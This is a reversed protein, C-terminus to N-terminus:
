THTNQGRTSIYMICIDLVACTLLPCQIKQFQLVVSNHVAIYISPVSDPGGAFHYIGETESGDVSVRM